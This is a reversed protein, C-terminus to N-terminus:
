KNTDFTQSREDEHTNAAIPIITVSPNLTIPLIKILHNSNHFVRIVSVYSRTIESSKLGYLPTGYIQM